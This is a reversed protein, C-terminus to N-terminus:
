GDMEDICGHVQARVGSAVKGRDYVVSGRATLKPRSTAEAVTRAQEPSSMVHLVELKPVRIAVSGSSQGGAAEIVPATGVLKEAPLGERDLCAELIEVPEEVPPSPAPKPDGEGCGALLM